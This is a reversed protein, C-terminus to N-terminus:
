CSFFIFARNDQRDLALGGGDDLVRFSILAQEIDCRPCIGRFADALAKLIDSFTAGTRYSLEERREPPITAYRTSIV